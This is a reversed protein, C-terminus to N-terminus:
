ISVSHAEQSTCVPSYTSSCTALIECNVTLWNDLCHPIRLMECGQLGEPGTVPYSNYSPRCIKAPPDRNRLPWVYTPLRLNTLMRLSVIKGRYCSLRQPLLIATILISHAEGVQWKSTETEKEQKERCVLYTRLMSENEHASLSPCRGFLIPAGICESAINSSFVWPM